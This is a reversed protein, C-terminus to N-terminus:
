FSAEVGVNYVRGYKEFQLLGGSGYRASYPRNTLNVAEAYARWGKAIRWKASLDVQLHGQEYIDQAADAPDDMAILRKGLWAHSLRLTLPGREYGLVLNALMKSQNPLPISGERLALTAKSHSLTANTNLLFGNDFKQTWSLELGYLKASDGNIVTEAKDYDAYEGQGALDVNVVYNRIHKYFVGATLAGLGSPYYEWALDLNDSRYPDLLPNGTSIKRYEVNGDDDREVSLESGPSLDGFNARAVSRTVAARLLSQPSLDYRLNLQPLVDTYRKRASVPVFQAADTVDDTLIRTGHATFDTREVR